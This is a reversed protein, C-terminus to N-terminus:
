NQTQERIIKLISKVDKSWRKFLMEMKVDPFMNAFQAPDVTVLITDTHEAYIVIKLPLYSALEPHANLLSQIEDDKGFFVIRYKDTKYGSKTLGIDVRQVRSLTYGQKGITEQLISMTEPFPESSRVMLLEEAFAHASLLFLLLPLILKRMM